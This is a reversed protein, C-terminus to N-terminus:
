AEVGWYTKMTHHKTLCLSLHIKVKWVKPTKNLSWDPLGTENGTMIKSFPQIRGVTMNLSRLL